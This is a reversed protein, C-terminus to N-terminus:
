GGGGGAADGEGAAADAPKAADPNAPKREAHPTKLVEELVRYLLPDKEETFESEPFEIPLDPQIGAGQVVKGDADLNRASTFSLVLGNGLELREREASFGLTPAGCTVTRGARRLMQALLEGERATGPGTILFLPAGYTWDGSPTCRLEQSAEFADHAGASRKQLYGYVVEEALFRGAIRQGVDRKGSSTYRLDVILSWTPALATLVEDLKEQVAEDDFRLVALYGVDHPTKSWVLSRGAFETSGLTTRIGEWSANLTRRFQKRTVLEDGLWLWLDPDDLRDLMKRIAVASDWATSARAVEKKADDLAAAWDVDASAEFLVYREDMARWAKEVLEVADRKKVQEAKPVARTLWGSEYDLRRKDLDYTYVRRPGEETDCDLVLAGRPPVTPLNGANWRGFVKTWYIRYALYLADPDGQGRVTKQPFVEGIREPHFRVWVHSVKEGDGGLTTKIAAPRDPIVVAWLAAGDAHGVVLTSSGLKLTLKDPVELAFSRLNWVDEPGAKWEHGVRDEEKAVYELTAPYRAALDQASAAGSLVLALALASGSRAFGM